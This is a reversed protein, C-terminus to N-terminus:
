SDWENLDIDDIPTHGWETDYWGQKAYRHFTTWPWQEPWQVLGHKVPNYHIYDFHRRLDDDDQITHEWFRRQWIAREGARVRSPSRVGEVGGGRCYLRSFTAKLTRWRSSFGGDGEPLTWLCHLHDPLLCVAPCEFPFRSRTDLWAARLCRRAFPTTLFPRRDHTVVTFFFTGGEQHLRTYNPM